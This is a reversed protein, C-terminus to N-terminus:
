AAHSVSAPWGSEERLIRAADTAPADLPASGVFDILTGLGNRYVSVRITGHGRTHFRFWKMSESFDVRTVASWPAWTEQGVGRRFIGDRSFGVTLFHSEYFAWLSGTFMAGFITSTIMLGKPDDLTGLISLILFGASIVLLLLTMRRFVPSYPMLYRGTATDVPAVPERRSLLWALIRETIVNSASATSV